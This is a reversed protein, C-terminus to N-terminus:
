LILPTAVPGAPGACAPGINELILFIKLLILRALIFDTLFSMCVHVIMTFGSLQAERVYSSMAVTHGFNSM